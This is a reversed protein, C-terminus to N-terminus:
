KLVEAPVRGYYTDQTWLAHCRHSGIVELHDIESIRAAAQPPIVLRWPGWTSHGLPASGGLIDGPKLQYLTWRAARPARPVAVVTTSIHECSRSKTMEGGVILSGGERSVYELRWDTIVPRFNTEFVSYAYLAVAAGILAVLREVAWLAVRGRASTEFWVALREAITEPEYRDRYRM